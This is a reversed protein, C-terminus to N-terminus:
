RQRGQGLNGRRPRVRLRRAIRRQLARRARAERGAPARAAAGPALGHRGADGTNGGGQRVRQGLRRGGGGRRPPRGPRLAVPAHPGKARRHLAPGPRRGGLAAARPSRPGVRRQRGGLGSPAASCRWSSQCPTSAARTAPSSRSASATPATARPVSIGTRTRCWCAVRGSRLDIEALAFRDDSRKDAAPDFAFVVHRGDPAIDFHNADPESRSLEYPTGEFLDRARGPRGDRGLELVHLHPVRGM